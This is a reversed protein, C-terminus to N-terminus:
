RAGLLRLIQPGAQFIFWVASAGYLIGNTMTFGKRIMDGQERIEQRIHPMDEVAQEVRTLRHPTDKHTDELSTLRHKITHVDREVQNLRPPITSTEDAM